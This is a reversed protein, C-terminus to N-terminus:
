FMNICEKIIELHSPHVIPLGAIRDLTMGATAYAQVTGIIGSAGNGIIHCGLIHKGEDCILKFAGNERENEVAFLSSYNMSCCATKYPIGKEICDAETMGIYAAEPNTFIVCPVCEETDPAFDADNKCLVHVIREAALGATYALQEKGCVDGCAYIHACGTRHHGDTVIFGNRVQVAPVNGLGINDTCGKRGAAVLVKDAAYEGAVGNEMDAATVVVSKGAAGTGCVRVSGVQQGPKIIIGKRKLSQIYEAKVTDDLGALFSKERELVTVKSGTNAYISAIELGAVGAGIVLLNEIPACADLVSTSDLAVGADFAESLGEVPPVVNYSGTAIIVDRVRYSAGGAGVTVGMDDAALIEACARIIMVKAQKLQMALGAALKKVDKEKKQRAAEWDFVAGQTKVASSGSLRYFEKTAGVLSKTPICGRFLCVGGAEGQEFVVVSMGCKSAELAAHYGAPGAGIIGLEYQIEMKIVMSREYVALKPQM